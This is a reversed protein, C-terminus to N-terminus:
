NTPLSSCSPSATRTTSRSPRATRSRSPSTTSPSTTASSRARGSRRGAILPTGTFGIFAANPLAPAHQRRAPRVPQPPGRRHHRHHRRAGVAGADARRRETSFKHILTFVYRDQGALLERLHVRSQAQATRSSDKTLAGRGRVDGAIQDDLEQRDTVMVFTWNGGLRRLVKQAFMVMSLSKGSGQTHWFVGLRGRNERIQEVAEIARNM